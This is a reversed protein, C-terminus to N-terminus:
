WIFRGKADPFDPFDMIKYNLFRTIKKKKKQTWLDSYLQRIESEPRLQVQSTSFHRLLRAWCSLELNCLREGRWFRGQIHLFEYPYLVAKGQLWFIAARNWAPLLCLLSLDSSM